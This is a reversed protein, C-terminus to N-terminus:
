DGSRGAHALWVFVSENAQSVVAFDDLGDRNFDGVAIRQPHSGVEIKVYDRTFKESNASTSLLVAVSSTLSGSVVVDSIGDGDFDGTALPGSFGPLEVVWGRKFTGDGKGLLFHLTQNATDLVVLDAIKDGDFDGIALFHPFETVWMERREAFTGDGQGLFLSLSGSLFNAVALDRHGDSNFDGSVVSRPSQGVFLPSPESFLDDGRGLRVLMRDKVGDVTVLDPAGDGNLDEILAATLVEELNLSVDETHFTGDSQGTLWRLQGSESSIVLIDPIGDQDKDAVALWDLAEGVPIQREQSFTGGVQGFLVSLTNRSAVVLDLLGDRNFDGAAMSHPEPGVKYRQGSEPSVPPTVDPAPAGVKSSKDEITLEIQANTCDFASLGRSDLVTLCVQYTGPQTYSHRVNPGEGWSDEGFSWRYSVIRANADTSATSTFEIEEGVRGAYPGGASASPWSPPTPVFGGNCQGFLTSPEPSFESIIILDPCSDRNLDAVAAASPHSATTIGQIFSFSGDGQGAFVYLDDSGWNVAVLDTIADRNFDGSVLALPSLGTFFRGEMRFHGNGQGVLLRFYGSFRSAVVLDERGDRDFDGTVVAIPGNDSPASLRSVAVFTGDGRGALTTLDNSDSNVVALDLARDSNFYGVALASPGRGMTPHAATLVQERRFLGECPPEQLFIAVEYAGASAVAVDPCRDGNFDGIGIGTPKEGVAIPSQSSPSFSGDCQGLLVSLDNSLQNAVVLDPCADRNFDAVALAAPHRGVRHPLKYLWQGEPGGLFISVQNRASEAVAADPIGDRNFDAVVLAIPRSGREAEQGLLQAAGLTLLAFAAWRASFARKNRKGENREDDM